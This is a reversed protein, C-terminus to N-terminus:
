ATVSQPGPDRLPNAHGCDGCTVTEPLTEFRSGSVGFSGDIRYGGCNQCPTAQFPKDCRLCDGDASTQGIRTIRTDASGCRVCLVEQSNM